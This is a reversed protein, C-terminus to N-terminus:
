GCRKWRRAVARFDALVETRVDRSDRASVPRSISRPRPPVLPSHVLVIIEPARRRTRRGPQHRRSMHCGKARDKEM